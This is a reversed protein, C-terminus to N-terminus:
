EALCNFLRATESDFFITIHDQMSSCFGNSRIELASIVVEIGNEFGFLIDQPSYVIVEKRGRLDSWVHLIKASIIKVNLLQSWRSNNTVDLVGCESNYVEPLLLKDLILLDCQGWTIYRTDGNVFTLEIGYDLSDFRSDDFFYHESNEYDIGHYRVKTIKKGVFYDAESEM